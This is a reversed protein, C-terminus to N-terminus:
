YNHIKNESIDEEVTDPLIPVRLEFNLSAASSIWLVGTINGKITRVIDVLELPELGEGITLVSAIKATEESIFDGNIVLM